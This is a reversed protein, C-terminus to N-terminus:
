SLWEKSFALHYRHDNWRIIWDGPLVPTADIETARDVIMYQNHRLSTPDVGSKHFRVSALVDKLLDSYTKM